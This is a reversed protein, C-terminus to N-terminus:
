NPSIESGTSAYRDHDFREDGDDDGGGEKGHGFGPADDNSDPEVKVVEQVFLGASYRSIAPSLVRSVLDVTDTERALSRLRRGVAAM